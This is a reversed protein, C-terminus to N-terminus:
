PLPPHSVDARAARLLQGVRDDPEHHPLAADLGRAHTGDDFADDAIGACAGDIAQAAAQCLRGIRPGIVRAILERASAAILAL